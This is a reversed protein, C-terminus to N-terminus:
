NMAWGIRKAQFTTVEDGRGAPAAAVTGLPPHLGLTSLLSFSIRQVVCCASTKPKLPPWDSLSYGNKENQQGRKRLSFLPAATFSVFGM